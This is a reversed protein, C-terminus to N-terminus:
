CQMLELSHILKISLDVSYGRFISQIDESSARFIGSGSGSYPCFVVKGGFGSGSHPHGAVRM